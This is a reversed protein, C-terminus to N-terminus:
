STVEVWAREGDASTRLAAGCGTCVCREDDYWCPEAECKEGPAHAGDQPGDDTGLGCVFCAVDDTKFVEASCEPCNLHASM